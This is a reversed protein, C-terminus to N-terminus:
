TYQMQYREVLNKSIFISDDKFIGHEHIVEFKVNPIKKDIILNPISHKQYYYNVKILIQFEEQFLYKKNLIDLFESNFMIFQLALAGASKCGSFMFVFNKPKFPNKVRTILAYDELIQDPKIQSPNIIKSPKYGNIKQTDKIIVDVPPHDVNDEWEFCFLNPMQKLENNIIETIINTKISGFLFLNDSLNISTRKSIIGDRRYQNVDIGEECSCCLKVNELGLNNVAISFCNMVLMSEQFILPISSSAAAASKKDHITGRHSFYLRINGNTRKIKDMIFFRNTSMSINFTICNQVPRKLEELSKMVKYNGIFFYAAIKFVQILYQIFSFWGKLIIFIVALLPLTALGAFVSYTNTIVSFDVSKNIYWICLIYICCTIFAIIGAGLLGKLLIEIKNKM